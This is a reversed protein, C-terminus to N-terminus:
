VIIVTGLPSSLLPICFLIEPLRLLLSLSQQHDVKTRGVVVYVKLGGRGKTGKQIIKESGRVVALYVQAGPNFQKVQRM